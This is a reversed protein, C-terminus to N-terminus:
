IEHEKATEIYQLVQQDLEFDPQDRLKYALPDTEEKVQRLMEEVNVVKQLLMQATEWDEKATASEIGISLLMVYRNYAEINYKQISVSKEKEQAMLQYNEELCASAALVDYAEAIYPNQRLIDVALKKAAKQDTEELMVAKKAETYFPLMKASAHPNGGAYIAMSIGCYIMGLSLFIGLIKYFAWRGHSALSIERGHTFDLLLILVFLIATFEFDFDVLSHIAISALMLKQNSNLRKSFFSRILMSLFLLCPIIGVDLAIQLFGNHVFRVQYVGTQISPQLFYYGLYGLGFPHNRLLRLGDKYYLLRGLFTSSSVATSYIRGINQMQGFINAYIWSGAAM